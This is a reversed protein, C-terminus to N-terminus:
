LLPSLIKWVNDLISPQANEKPHIGDPQMLSKYRAIDKLIFPIFPLQYSESLEVYNQYFKKEYIHGYNPPLHIGALIVQASANKSMLIMKQLNAYTTKPKFGRLGDNGGLEILVIQPQYQLLLKSLRRLGGSTTEGSISANIVVWHPKKQKLRTSLLNVWGSGPILGYGASLSDGLIVIKKVAGNDSEINTKITPINSGWLQSLSLFYLTILLLFTCSFNNSSKLNFPKM